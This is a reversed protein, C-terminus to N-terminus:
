KGKWGCTGCRFEEHAHKKTLPRGCWACPRAFVHDSPLNGDPRYVCEM